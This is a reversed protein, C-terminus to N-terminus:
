EILPKKQLKNDDKVVWPFFVVLHRHTPHSTIMKKLGLFFGMLCHHTSLSTMMKQLGFLFGCFSSSGKLNDNDEIIAFFFVFPSGPPKDGDRTFIFCMTSEVKIGVCM